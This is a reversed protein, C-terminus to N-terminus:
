GINNAPLTFFFQSGKGMESEVGVQGGLKDIIKRVISLGLGHGETSQRHLRTFPTFLKAQQENSLGEGNDRVWFVIMGDNQVEAGIKLHPPQGGYKLANSLYNFWVEELWPAYGQAQPLTDPLEITAQSKEPMTNLREIAAKLISSMELTQIEPKAQKSAGALLLLANIINLIKVSTEQILRLQKIKKFTLPSNPSCTALITEILNNIGGVPNKLDHAVMKAFADLEQNRQELEQTRAQLEITREALVQNTHKLSTETQKRVQIETQLQVTQEQLQQNQWTLQQQFQRLNKHATVRALVEEQQIPKTIYDAAGLQFGKIKDATNSLATMFIIPIDRTNDQSKLYQCVEFGDMDPMMVDLLIVNPQTYTATEIGEEGDQAILVKFGAKTLFDLLLKVNDPTDDIVLLTDQNTTDM